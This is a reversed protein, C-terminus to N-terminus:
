LTVTFGIPPRIAFLVYLSVEVMFLFYAIKNCKPYNLNTM